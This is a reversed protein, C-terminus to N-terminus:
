PLATTTTPESLAGALPSTFRVVGAPVNNLDTGFPCWQALPGGPIDVVVRACYSLAPITAARGTYTWPGAVTPAHWTSIDDSALDSLKGAALFGGNQPIVQLYTIPNTSGIFDLPKAQAPDTSWSPQAPDSSPGAYYEWPSTAVSALPARALFHKNSGVHGQPTNGDRGYGYFYGGVALGGTNWNPLYEKSPGVQSSLGAIPRSDILNLGPLSFTAVDFGAFAFNFPPALGPDPQMRLSFVKLVNQSRDYAGTFPWDFANAAPAPILSTRAGRSGAMVPTFCPGDQVVFSSHM